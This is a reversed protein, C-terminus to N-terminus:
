ERPPPQRAPLRPRAVPEAEKWEQEQIPKPPSQTKEPQPSPKYERNTELELDEDIQKLQDM